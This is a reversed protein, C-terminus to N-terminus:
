SRPRWLTKHRRQVGVFNTTWMSLFSQPAESRGCLKNDVHVIFKTPAQPAVFNTTRTSLLSQTKEPAVFNITWTSLLSQPLDSAGCLKKDMHVVFKTATRTPTVCRSTVEFAEGSCRPITPHSASPKRTRTPCGVFGKQVGTPLWESAHRFRKAICTRICKTHWESM